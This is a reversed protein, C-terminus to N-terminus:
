LHEIGVPELGEQLRSVHEVGRQGGPQLIDVGSAVRAIRHRKVKGKPAAFRTDACQQLMAPQRGALRSKAPGRLRRQKGSLHPRVWWSRFFEIAPLTLLTMRTPLRPLSGSIREVWSPRRMALRDSAVESLQRSLFEPSRLSFVSHCRTTM